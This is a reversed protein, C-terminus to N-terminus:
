LYENRLQSQIKGQRLLLLLKTFRNASESFAFDSRMDHFPVFGRVERQFDHRLEGFHPQEAHNKGLLIAAGAEAVYLIRDGDFLKRADVPGYADDDRRM